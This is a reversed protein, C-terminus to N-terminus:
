SRPHFLETRGGSEPPLDLVAQSLAPTAGFGAPVSRFGSLSSIVGAPALLGGGHKIVDISFNFGLSTTAISQSSFHAGTGADIGLRIKAPGDHTSPSGIGAPHHWRGGSQTSPCTGTPTMVRVTQRLGLRLTESLHTESMSVAIVIADRLNNRIAQDLLQRDSPCSSYLDAPPQSADM